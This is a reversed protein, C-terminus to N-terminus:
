LFRTANICITIFLTHNCNQSHVSNVIGPLYATTTLTGNYGCIPYNRSECAQDSWYYSDSNSLHVCNQTGPYSPNNSAWPHIGVTADGNTHNFGYDM